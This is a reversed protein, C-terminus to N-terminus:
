GPNTITESQPPSSLAIDSLPELTAIAGGTFHLEAADRVARSDSVYMM